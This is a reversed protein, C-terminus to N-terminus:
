EHLSIKMRYRKGKGEEVLNLKGERALWGLGMAVIVRKMPVSDDMLTDELQKFTVEGREHLFKWIQGAVPGIFTEM